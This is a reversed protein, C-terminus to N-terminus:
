QRRMTVELSSGGPGSAGSGANQLKKSMLLYICMGNWEPGAARAAHSHAGTGRQARERWSPGASRWLLGTRRSHPSPVDQVFTEFIWKGGHNLGWDEGKM